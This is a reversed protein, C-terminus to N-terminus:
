YPYYLNDYFRRRYRPRRRGFIENLLLAGILARLLDRRNGYQRVMNEIEETNEIEEVFVDIGEMESYIRDVMQEILEQDVYEEYIPSNDYDMRDCESEIYPQIQKCTDSYLEQMYEMDQEDMFSYDMPMAPTGAMPSMNEQFYPCNWGIAPNMGMSPVADPCMGMTPDINPYMGMGADMNIGPYMEMGTDMNINPYMEMGADMNPYMDTNMDYFNPLPLLSNPMYQNNEM